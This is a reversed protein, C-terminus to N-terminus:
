RKLNKRLNTTTRPSKVRRKLRWKPGSSRKRKMPAATATATSPREHNGDREFGAAIAPSMDIPTSSTTTVVAAQGHGTDRSLGLNPRPYVPKRWLEPRVAGAPFTGARHDQQSRCRDGAMHGYIRRDDHQQRRRPPAVRASMAALAERCRAARARRKLMASSSRWRAPSFASRRSTIWRKGALMAELEQLSMNLKAATQNMQSDYNM